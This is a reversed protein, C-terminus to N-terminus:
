KYAPLPVSSCRFCGPFPAKSWHPVDVHFVLILRGYTPEVSGRHARSTWEQRWNASMHARAYTRPTYLNKLRNSGWTPGGIRTYDVHWRKIRRLKVRKFQHHPMSVRIGHPLWEETSTAHCPEYFVSGMHCGSRLQPLMVHSMSSV